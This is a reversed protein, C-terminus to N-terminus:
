LVCEGDANETSFASLPTYASTTKQGDWWDLKFVFKSWIDDTLTSCSNTSIKCSGEGGWCNFTGRFEDVENLLNLLQYYIAHPLHMGATNTAIRIKLTGTQIQQGLEVM